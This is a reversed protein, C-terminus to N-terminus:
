CHSDNAAAVCCRPFRRVECPMGEFGRMQDGPRAWSVAGNLTQLKAQLEANVPAMSESAPSVASERKVLYLRNM